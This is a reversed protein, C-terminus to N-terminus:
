KLLTGSDGVKWQANAFVYLVTRVAERENDGKIKIDVLMWDDLGKFFMGLINETPEAFQRGKFKKLIKADRGYNKINVPWVGRNAADTKIFEEVANKPAYSEDITTWSYADAASGSKGKLLLYGGIVVGDFLLFLILYRAFKNMDM